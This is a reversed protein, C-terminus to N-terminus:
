LTDPLTVWQFSHGTAPIIRSILDELRMVVSASNLCPHCAFVPYNQLDSDLLLNVTCDTDHILGLPTVSGPTVGLYQKMHAEDAFSLRASNIQASLYKTKFVKEGPMVLLYFRTQQKNTLFLNKFVPAKIYDRVRNCEEITFAAPHKLTQYGICLNDLFDYVPVEVPLCLDATPRGDFLQFKTDMDLACGRM